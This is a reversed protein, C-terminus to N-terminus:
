ALTSNFRDNINIADYNYYRIKRATFTHAIFIWSVHTYNEWSLNGLPVHSDTWDTSTYIAPDFLLDGGWLLISSAVFYKLSFKKRM